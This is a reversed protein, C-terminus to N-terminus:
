RNLDILGEVRYVDSEDLHSMRTEAEEQLQKLLYSEIGPPTAHDIELRVAPQFPRRAVTEAVAEVLDDLNDSDLNLNGSRTVRFLYSGEIPREDLLRPLSGELVDELPIFRRGGPLPVLRPIDGPLEIVA